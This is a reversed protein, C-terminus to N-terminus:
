KADIDVMEWKGTKASFAFLKTGIELRAWDHLVIPDAPADLHAVDWTGTTGSFAYVDNGFSVCAVLESVVPQVAKKAPNQLAVKKWAGTHKSYGWVADSQKTVAVLIADSSVVNTGTANPAPGAIGGGGFQAKTTGPWALATVTAVAVIAVLSGIQFRTTM